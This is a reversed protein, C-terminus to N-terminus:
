FALIDAKEQMMRIDLDKNETPIDEKSMIDEGKINQMLAQKEKIKCCFLSM